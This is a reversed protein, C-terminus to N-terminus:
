LAQVTGRLKCRRLPSSPLPLSAALGLAFSSIALAWLSVVVSLGIGAPTSPTQTVLPNPQGTADALVYFVGARVPWGEMAALLGGGVIGVLALMLPGVVGAAACLALLQRLGRGEGAGFVRTFLRVLADTYSGSMAWGVLVGTFGLGWAATVCAWAM